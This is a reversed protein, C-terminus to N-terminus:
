VNKGNITIEVTLPVEAVLERKTSTGSKIYTKCWYDGSVNLAFTDLKMRNRMRKHAELFEVTNGFKGTVKGNPDVFEYELQITQKKGSKPRFLLSVVEFKVPVLNNKTGEYNTNPDDVSFQLAETSDMLSINNSEADLKSEKCLVTWIHKIM